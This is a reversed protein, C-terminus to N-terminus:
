SLLIICTFNLNYYIILKETKRISLSKKLNEQLRFIFRDFINKSDKILVILAIIGDKM